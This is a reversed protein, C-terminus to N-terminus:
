KGKWGPGRVVHGPTAHTHEGDKLVQTGNVFVQTVGTSYQHPHEYTAHDQITEPDFVVVDAFFGAKLSGRRDLKLNAAPFSTLRRIADQLSVIKEDRVYRGLLRAFNGYVRPHASSKLFVGEPALSGGDSGFSVWPLAIQKRVNDESMLFYVADVGSDDEIVLDMATEEPLTGRMSAVQALTKGTLPKLAPNKFGILLVNHPSGADFLMNEWGDGEHLMEQRVRDRIAHNKLREVWADHGGERVWPPMTADLGTSAAIYTYMDATVRLGEARAAEIHKIAADLKGWNAKGSAKIHYLESTVNAERAITILEELGELLRAGESRIHSIYMGDYEAACKALTILEETRAFCGPTYILASAVGMAGEEMAERVLTRMHDLEKPTPARDEHDVTHIRVTSAGVFSAVNTSM